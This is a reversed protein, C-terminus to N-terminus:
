RLVYLRGDRVAWRFGKAQLQDLAQRLSMEPSLSLTADSNWAAEGPFVKLGHSRGVADLFDPVDLAGSIELPQQLATLPM